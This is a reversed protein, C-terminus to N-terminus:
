QHDQASTNEKNTSRSVLYEKIALEYLDSLTLGNKIAFRKAARHTQAPLIGGFKKMQARNPNNM